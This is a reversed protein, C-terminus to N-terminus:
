AKKNVPLYFTFTAGQGNGGHDVDFHGGHSEVITNSIALGLGMGTDKSSSFTRFLREKVEESIGSGSDAVSIAVYDHAVNAKVSIRASQQHAVAEIANRLLNVLVQQIQVADILLEPLNGAVDTRIELGNRQYGVMTMEISDQILQSIDATANKMTAYKGFWRMRQSIQSARKTERMAKRLIDSMDANLVDFAKNKKEIAQLYLTLATLPQNLEHAMGASMEDVTNRRSLKLLQQQLEDIRDQDSQKPRLDKLVGIFQHGAPTYAKGITLEIPILSGDKHQGYVTHTTGIVDDGGNKVYEIISGNDSRVSRPPMLLTAYRGVIEGSAYGFLAECAENYMLVRARDNTVIIGDGATQLLTDFRAASVTVDNSARDNNAEVKTNGRVGYELAGTNSKEVM